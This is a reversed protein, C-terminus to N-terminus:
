RCGDCQIREVTRAVLIGAKERPLRNYQLVEEEDDEAGELRNCEM